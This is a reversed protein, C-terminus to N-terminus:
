PRRLLRLAPAVITPGSRPTPWLGAAPRRRNTGGALKRLPAAEAQLAAALSLGALLPALTPLGTLLVAPGALPAWQDPPPLGPTFPVPLPRPALLALWAGAACQWNPSRHRRGVTRARGTDSRSPAGGADVEL